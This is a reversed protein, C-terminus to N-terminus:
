QTGLERGSYFPNLANFLETHSDAVPQRRFLPAGQHLGWRQLSRTTFAVAGDEPDEQSATEAARFEDMQSRLIQLLSFVTPGDDIENAFAPV